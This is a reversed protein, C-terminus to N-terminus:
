SKEEENFTTQMLILATAVATHTNPFQGLLTFLQDNSFIWCRPDTDGLLLRARDLGTLCRPDFAFRARSLRKWVWRDYVTQIYLFGKIFSYVFFFLLLSLLFDM